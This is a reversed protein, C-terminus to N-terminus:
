LDGTTLKGYPDPTTVQSGFSVYTLKRAASQSIMGMHSLWLARVGDSMPEPPTFGKKPPAEIEVVELIEARYGDEHEIVKGSLLVKAIAVSRGLYNSIRYKVALERTKFAYYGCGNGTLSKCNDGPIEECFAPPSMSIIGWDKHRCEAHLEEGVPHRKPTVVPEDPGDPHPFGLWLGDSDGLEVEVPIVRWAEIKEPSWTEELPESKEAEGVPPILPLNFLSTAQYAKLVSETLVLPPYRRDEFWIMLHTLLITAAITFAIIAVLLLSVTLANM